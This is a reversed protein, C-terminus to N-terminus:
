QGAHTLIHKIEPVIIEESALKVAKPSGPICFVASGKVLGATARSLLVATKVQEYSKWRFLEGFGDMTKDFMPSVAEITCDDSTLGTGGTVVVCNASELAKSVASSIQEEVDPVLTQFVVEMEANEFAERIIQGSLDTKETRSTSVTIVAAKVPIDKHHEHGM